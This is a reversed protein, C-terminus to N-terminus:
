NTCILFLSNKCFVHVNLRDVFLINFKFKIVDLTHSLKGFIKSELSWLAFMLMEKVINPMKVGSAMCYVHMCKYLTSMYFSLAKWYQWYKQNWKFNFSLQRETHLQVPHRSMACVATQTDTPYSNDGHSLEQEDPENMCLELYQYFTPKKQLM